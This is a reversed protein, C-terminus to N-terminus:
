LLSPEDPLPMWYTPCENGELRNGEVFDAFFWGETEICEDDHGMLEDETLFEIPAIWRILMIGCDSRWGLIETGDKPASDILAWRM